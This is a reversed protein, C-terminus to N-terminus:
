PWIVGLVRTLIGSRPKGLSGESQYVIQADAVRSSAALDTSSVDQPRLWGTLTMVQKNKDVDVTKSGKVQLNGEKSIAVVKVSIEGTFHNARTAEGRQRSEGDNSSEIAVNKGTAPAPLSADVGLRRHKQDTATNAKNASAATREDVLITIIDGVVFDRRDSTWSKPPRRSTPTSDAPPVASLGRPASSSAPAAQGHVPRAAIVCPAIVCLALVVLSRTM